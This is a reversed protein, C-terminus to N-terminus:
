VWMTLNDAKLKCLATLTCSDELGPQNPAKEGVQTFLSASVDTKKNENSM